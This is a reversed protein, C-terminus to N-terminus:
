APATLTFFVQGGAERYAIHAGIKHAANKAVSLGLGMGSQSATQPHRYYREFIRSTQPLSEPTVHNSIEFCTFPATHEPKDEPTGAHHGSSRRVEIRIPRERLAYKSANEMLNDLIIILLQRDCCFSTAPAVRLQWQEPRSVEGLLEHILSGADMRTPSATATVRDMKNFHAVREILDDMRRTSLDISQLRMLLDKHGLDQQKLSALAFRVTGLPNKLEHTLMDILASQEDLEVQKNHAIFAQRRLVDVELRHAKKQASREEMTIWFFIIGIALGNLRLDGIQQVFDMKPLWEVHTRNLFFGLILLVLYVSCGAVLVRRQRLPLQAATWIGYFEWVPLVSFVILSLRMSLPVQGTLVLLANLACVGLVVQIGRLYATSPRYPQLLAWALLVTMGVRLPNLFYNFTSLVEPSVWPAAQALLGENSAIFLVVSCQFSCYVLILVNRDTLFIVLGLGLLCLAMVLSATTIRVSKAVAQLMEDTHLLDMSALMFGQHTLRLFVQTPETAPLVMDFSHMSMFSSQASSVQFALRSQTVWQGQSLAFLEVQDLRYPSVQLVASAPRENEVGAPAVTLRVWVAGPNFGLVLNGQYPRFAADRVSELTLTGGPDKLYARELLLPASGSFATIQWFALCLFLILRIM